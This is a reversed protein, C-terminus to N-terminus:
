KLGLGHCDKGFVPTDWFHEDLPIKYFNLLDDRCSVILFEVNKCKAYVCTVIQMNLLLLGHFAM